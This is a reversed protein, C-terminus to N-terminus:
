TVSKHEKYHQFVISSFYQLTNVNNTINARGKRHPSQTYEVRCDLKLPVVGGSVGLNIKIM